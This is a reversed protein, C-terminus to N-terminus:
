AIRAACIGFPELAYSKQRCCRFISSHFCLLMDIDLVRAGRIRAPSASSGVYPFKMRVRRPSASARLLGNRKHKTYHCRPSRHRPPDRQQDARVQVWWQIRKIHLRKQSFPCWTLAWVCDERAVTVSLEPSNQSDGIQKQGNHPQQQRAHGERVNSCLVPQMRHM